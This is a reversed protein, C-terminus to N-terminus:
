APTDQDVRRYIARICVEGEETILKPREAEAFDAEEMLEKFWDTSLEDGTMAAVASSPLIVYVWGGSRLVRRVERLVGLVDDVTRGTGRALSAVVWDFHEDPYALERSSAAQIREELAARELVGALRSRMQRVHEADTDQGYVEFGLRALPIVHRGAGARIDLVRQGTPVAAFTRLLHDSPAQVAM